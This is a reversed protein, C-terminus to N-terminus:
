APPTTFIYVLEAAHAKLDSLRVSEDNGHARSEARRGPGVMAIADTNLVRALDAMDTSGGMGTDVFEDLRYDHALQLAEVVRDALPHTASQYYSPYIHMVDVHVDLAPSRARGRAIAAEIEAVIDEFREEPTYRRNVVLTCGGPVINSKSGARIVDLNFMPSLHSPAQPIDPDRAIPLASRRAEVEVKLALLENMIPVMAELANVGLYNRGSHCSRGITTITIDVAGNGGLVRVPDQSGELCLVPPQIYGQEALYRAGAYVGIEEDTCLIYTIEYAPELGLQRMSALATLFTAITGKMDAVGRGYVRGEVLEAGWPDHTWGADVPVVDMHSYVTLPPKGPAPLTAVLNVREGELPLPIARWLPEPLVVRETRCGLQNLEPEVEDVVAPYGRGPPVTTNVVIVRRLRDLLAAEQAEVAAVIALWGGAQDRM